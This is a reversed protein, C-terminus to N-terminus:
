SHDPVVAPQRRAGGLTQHDRRDPASLQRFHRPCPSPYLLALIAGVILFSVLLSLLERRQLWSAHRYQEERLNAEHLQMARVTARIADMMAKGRQNMGAANLAAANQHLVADAFGLWQSYQNRLLTLQAMQAPDGALM